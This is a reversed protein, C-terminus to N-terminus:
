PSASQLPTISGFYAYIWDQAMTNVNKNRNKTSLSVQGISYQIMTVGKVDDDSTILIYTSVSNDNRPYQNSCKFQVLKSACVHTEGFLDVFQTPLM